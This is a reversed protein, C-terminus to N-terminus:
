GAGGRGRPIRTETPRIEVRWVSGEGSRYQGTSVRGIRYDPLRVSALCGREGGPLDVLVGATFFDFDLNEFGHPAREAPLADPAEPFVHLFFRERLSEKRCGARRYFLAPGGAASISDRDFYVEFDAAADPEKTRRFEYAERYRNSAPAYERDVAFVAGDASEALLRLGPTAFLAPPTRFRHPPRRFDTSWLVRAGEPATEVWSALREQPVSLGGGPAEQLFRWDGRRRVRRSGGNHVFVPTRLNTYIFRSGSSTDTRLFRMTESSAWPEGLFGNDFLVEASNARAIARRQPGIQGAAWVSLVAAAAVVGVRRFPRRGSGADFLPDLAAALALVLPLRAPFLHRPEVGFGSQGLLLAVFYLSVFALTFGGFVLARRRREMPSSRGAGRPGRPRRALLLAALPALAGLALLPASGADFRVWALIVSGIDSWIEAAAYDPAAERGTLTGSVLRNRVLWVAMPLGAVATYGAANRVNERRRTGPRLLVLLGAYATLIVGQYRTSFALGAFVATWALSSRKGDELFECLRFLALLTLLTFIPGSHARWASEAFPLSLAVAAPTWVRLFRSGFHRAAYRGVLFVVLAFVAAHLWHSESLLELGLLDAGALVLPLFPPWSVYPLAGRSSQWTAFGDGALLSDAAVMYIVSDNTLAPGYTASRALVLGFALAALAGAFVGYPVPPFRAPGAGRRGEAGALRKRRRGGTSIVRRFRRGAATAGASGRETRSGDAAAGGGGKM